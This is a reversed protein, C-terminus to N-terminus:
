RGQFNPSRQELFATMGEKQDSTSFLTAFTQRELMNSAAISLDAGAVLMKKAQSVALPAANAIKKAVEQCHSLLKESEVIDLVLGLQQAQRADITEGTFILERARQTGIRRALRWTGGFGPIIGGLVEIQGFRSQESAYTLDCATILECGGGLALGDVAAITPFPLAELTACVQQGLESFNLAELPNLSILKSVDALLAEPKAGTVILARITSDQALLQLTQLMKSLTNTGLSHPQSLSLTVVGESRESSVIQETM